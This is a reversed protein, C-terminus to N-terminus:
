LEKGGISLEQLPSRYVSLALMLKIDFRQRRANVQQFQASEWFNILLRKYLVSGYGSM